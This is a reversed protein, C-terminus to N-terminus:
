DLFFKITMSALKGSDDLEMNILTFSTSYSVLKPNKKSPTPLKSMIKGPNDGIKVGDIEYNLSSFKIGFVTINPEEGKEPVTLVDIEVGDYILNEVTLSPNNAGHPSDIKETTHKVPKGLTQIIEKPNKGFANRIKSAFDDIVRAEKSDPDYVNGYLEKEEELGPNSLKHFRTYTPSGYFGEMRLNNPNHQLYNEVGLGRRDKVMTDAGADLLLDIIRECPMGSSIAAMLMMLPVVGNTSITANVDANAEILAKTIEYSQATDKVEAFLAIHLPPYESGFKKNVDAGSAILLKVIETKQSNPPLMKFTKQDRLGGVFGLDVGSILASNLPTLGDAKSSSLVPLNANVNAGNKLADKVEQLTGTQCLRVFVEDSMAEAFVGSAMVMLFLGAFVLNKLLNNM